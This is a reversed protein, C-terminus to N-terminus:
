GLSNVRPNSKRKVIGSAAILAAGTCAVLGWFIWGLPPAWAQRKLFIIPGRLGVSYRRAITYWAFIYMTAVTGGLLLSIRRTLFRRVVEWRQTIIEGAALPIAVVFPLLHRGQADFGVARQVADFGMTVVLTLLSLGLLVLRQRATGALLASVMLATLVLGWISYAWSPLFTDLPGFVGIEEIAVARLYGWNPILDRLFVSIKLIPHPEIQLQWALSLAIALVVIAAAIRAPKAGNKFAGLAARPGVWAILIAIGVVVWVPGLERINALIAASLGATVWTRATGDGRSLRLMASFFCIASAIELGSSSLSASVFIVMPTVSAVLGAVSFWGKSQDWLTFSALCILGASLIAMVIRGIYLAQNGSNAQNMFVGATVYALPPYTAVYTQKEVTANPPADQHPCPAVRDPIGRCSFVDPSLRSPISVIRTQQGMWKLAKNTQEPLEQHRQFPPPRENPVINGRGAAIAKLYHHYEDPAVGPPASFVWAVM